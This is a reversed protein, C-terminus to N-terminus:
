KDVIDFRISNIHLKRHMMLVNKTIYNATTSALLCENPRCFVVVGHYKKWTEEIRRFILRCFRDNIIITGMSSQFNPYKEREIMTYLISIKRSKIISFSDIVFLYVYVCVYGSQFNM